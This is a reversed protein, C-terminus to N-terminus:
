PNLSMWSEWGNKELYSSRQEATFKSRSKPFGGGGQAGSQRTGGGSKGSSPFAMAYTEDQSATEVLQKLTMPAGNSDGIAPGGTNPDVVEYSYSDGNRVMRVREKLHPTLLKVTQANGGAELIATQLANDIVLRELSSETNKLQAQWQSEKEQFKGAMQEVQSQAMEKAKEEVSLSSNKLMEYEELQKKVAKPDIGEFESSMNRLKAMEAQQRSMTAKMTGIDEVGYIRTAGEVEVETPSADLVYVGGKDKYLDRYPEEVQNIDTVASPIPM